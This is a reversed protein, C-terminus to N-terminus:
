RDGFAPAAPVESGPGNAADAADSRSAVYKEEVIVELRTVREALARIERRMEARLEAIERHMEARLKAIEGRLGAIEVGLEGVQRQIGFMSTYMLGFGAIMGMLLTAMLMDSRNWGRSSAERTKMPPSEPTRTEKEM